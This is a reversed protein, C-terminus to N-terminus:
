ENESNMFNVVEKELDEITGNNEFITAPNDIDIWDRESNHVKMLPLFKGNYEDTNLINFEGALNWWEPRDGREVRIITGGLRRIMEIENRFRVDTIVFNGDENILKRELCYVWISKDLNNRMVETGIKQLAMRPTFEKEFKKSWFEDPQERIARDEPTFGSLMKRDWDFLVSVIDKLKDAFAVKQFDFNKCIIDGITDKGSGKLGTIGIIKKM